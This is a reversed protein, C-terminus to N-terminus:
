KGTVAYKALSSEGLGNAREIFNKELKCKM